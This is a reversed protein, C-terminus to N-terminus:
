KIEEYGNFLIVIDISVNKILLWKEYLVNIGYFMDFEKVNEM